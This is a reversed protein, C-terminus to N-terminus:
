NNMINVKQGESLFNAGQTVISESESLGSIVAVGDPYIKGIRIEKKSVIQTKPDIQFVFAKDGNAEVLAETPLFLFSDKTNQQIEAKAVFGSVLKKGSANIRIEVEFTGTAPNITQAIQTVEGSFQENPYADLSIKAKDGMKVKVMDRDSLGVNVFYAAEGTGLILAPAFPTILEGQESIKRLVRGATPAYIRSLKQNFEAVKIGEKVAEYNSNVDQLTQLTAASDAFLKKVRNLDREAKALGVKAQNVQADIESMDLEALLQGAQVTQGENVLMRKIMGGTKFALKLENKSALVGSAIIPDQLSKRGVAEVRVSQLEEQQTAQKKEEKNKCAILSIGFALVFVSNKTYTIM